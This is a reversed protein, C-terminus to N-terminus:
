LRACLRSPAHRSGGRRVGCRGAATQCFVCPWARNWARCSHRPRSRRFRCWRRSCSARCDANGDQWSWLGLGLAVGGILLGVWGVHWLMGDGLLSQSSRRPPRAMVDREPREVSLALATLGDTVLNIWLIQLPLLPLPVGFPPGLLMVWLEGANSALLYKLLKRIDYIVRGEEVAAVITAFRRSRHRKPTM